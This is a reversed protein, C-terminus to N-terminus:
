FKGNYTNGWYKESKANRSDMEKRVERETQGINEVLVKEKDEVALKTNEIDLDAKKLEELLETHRELLPKIRSEQPIKLCSNCSYERTDDEGYWECKSDTM